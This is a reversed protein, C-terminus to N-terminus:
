NEAVIEFAVGVEEVAGNVVAFGDEDFASIARIPSEGEPQNVRTGVFDGTLSGELAYLDGAITLDGSYDAYWQNPRNTLNDDFDDGLFSQNSGILIEGSIDLLESAGAEAAALNTVSGTMSNDDFDATLRADGVVFIDDDPTAEMNEIVLGGYGLFTVAGSSPIASFATNSLANVEASMAAGAENAALFADFPDTEGTPPASSSSDSCAAVLSLVGFVCASKVLRM